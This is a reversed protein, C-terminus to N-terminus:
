YRIRTGVTRVVINNKRSTVQEGKPVVPRTRSWAQEVCFRGANETLGFLTWLSGPEPPKAAAEMCYALAKEWAERTLPIDETPRASFYDSM